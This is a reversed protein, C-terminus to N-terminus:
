HRPRAVRQNLHSSEPRNTGRWVTSRSRAAVRMGSIEGKPWAVPSAPLLEHATLLLMKPSGGNSLLELGTKKERAAIM